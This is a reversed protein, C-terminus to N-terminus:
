RLSGACQMFKGKRQFFILTRNRRKLGFKGKDEKVKGRKNVCHNHAKM